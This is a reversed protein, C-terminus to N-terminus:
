QVCPISRVWVVKALSVSAMATSTTKACGALLLCVYSTGSSKEGMSTVNPGLVGMALDARTGNAGLQLTAPNNMMGATGNDYAQAAGGMSLAVPGYGEMLMGNTAHVSLSALLLASAAVTARLTHKTKM